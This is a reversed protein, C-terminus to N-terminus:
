HASATFTKSIGGYDNIISWAVTTGQMGANLTYTQSSMPPLYNAQSIAKGNLTVQQFNMYFPTPNNAKLTNGSKSWTIKNAVSEPTASIGNPRYILKLRTKVAIQLTNSSESKKSAPVSKIDLWFLSERDNPLQAPTKVVRLINEQSGKLRFLPPTIIFPAKSEGEHEPAVWSQILYNIDDPNTITISSEKKAGNYILRTGGIIVGAHAVPLTAVFLTAIIIKRM